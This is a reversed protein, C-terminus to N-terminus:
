RGVEASSAISATTTLPIVARVEFGRGDPGLGASATGGHAAARERIGILGHGTGPGPAAGPAPATGPGGGDDRVTITM